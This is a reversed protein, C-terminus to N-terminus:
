ARDDLSVDGAPGSRNGRIASMRLLAVVRRDVRELDERTPSNLDAKASQWSAVSGAFNAYVSCMVIFAVSDRWWLIAPPILLIWVLALTAHIRVWTRPQALVVSLRSV